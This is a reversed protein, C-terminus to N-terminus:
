PKITETFSEGTLEELRQIARSMNIRVVAGTKVNHSYFVWDGQANHPSLQTVNGAGDMAFLRTTGGEEKAFLVGHESDTTPNEDQAHLALYGEAHLNGMYSNVNSSM